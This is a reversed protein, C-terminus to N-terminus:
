SRVADARIAGAGVRWGDRFAALLPQQGTHREVVDGLV